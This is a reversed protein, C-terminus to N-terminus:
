ADALIAEIQSIAQVIGEEMGMEVLQEMAEVSAFESQLVMTTGGGDREALTMVMTTTPLAENKAGTDDAFSDLLELRRPPDSAVIEWMGHFKEGEPSTMFYRVTSGAALDHEVITAPYTPPGWWRELQRPDAWLQWAREVSTDLETTVTMTRAAPDKDVTTKM